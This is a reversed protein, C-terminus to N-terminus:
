TIVLEVKTAQIVPLDSPKDGRLIRGVYAGSQRAADSLSTGYSVLGGAEAFKRSNLMTPIADRGSLAVFQDRRETLFL